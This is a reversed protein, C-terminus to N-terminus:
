VALRTGAQGDAPHNSIRASAECTSAQNNIVEARGRNGEATDDATRVRCGTRATMM